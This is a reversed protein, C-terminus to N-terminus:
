PSDRKMLAIYETRDDANNSDRLYQLKM